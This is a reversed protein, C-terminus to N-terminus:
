DKGRLSKLATSWAVVEEAVKELNKERGPLPKFVSMNEFDQGLYLLVHARVDALHLEAAVGRWHEIARSGGNSGYGVFGVAKHGWEHFLYDVANKFSGPVSHNYEPTVFIYGDAEDIKQSWKKTHEKTYQAAQAPVPEDLIPLNFDAVDVLEVDYGKGKLHEHAWKSVAEGNRGPRTSGTIIQIKM